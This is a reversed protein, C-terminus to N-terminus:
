SSSESREERWGNRVVGGVGVGGRKGGQNRTTMLFYECVATIAMVRSFLENITLTFRRKM